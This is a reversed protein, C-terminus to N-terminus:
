MVDAKASGILGASPDGSASFAACSAVACCSGSAMTLCWGLSFGGRNIPQERIHDSAEPGHAHRRTTKEKWWTPMIFCFMIVTRGFMSMIPQTDIM